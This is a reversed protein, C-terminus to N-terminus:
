SNSGTKAGLLTKVLLLNGMFVDYIEERKEKRKGERMMLYGTYWGYRCVQCIRRRSRDVEESFFIGCVEM